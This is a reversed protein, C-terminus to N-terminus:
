NSKINYSFDKTMIKNVYDIKIKMFMGDSGFYFVEKINDGDFGVINSVTIDKSSYNIDSGQTGFIDEYDSPILKSAITVMSRYLMKNFGKAQEQGNSQEIAEDIDFLNITGEDSSIILKHGFKSFNMSYIFAPRIGRKFTCIKQGNPLSFIRIITGKCSCTALRDGKESLSMKLIPSKHAKIQIKITSPNLADYLKVEGEDVSSSFCIWVNENTNNSLILKGLCINNIEYNHIIKRDSTSYIHLYNREAVIM